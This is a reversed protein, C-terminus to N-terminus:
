DVAERGMGSGISVNNEGGLSGGIGDFVQEMSPYAKMGLAEETVDIRDEEVM